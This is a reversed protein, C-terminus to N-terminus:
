SVLPGYGLSKRLRNAEPKLSRLTDTEKSFEPGIV